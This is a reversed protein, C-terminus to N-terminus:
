RGEVRDGVIRAPVGLVKVNAPVDKTVVAGAGVVAEPGISTRDVVVAGLAVYARAGIRCFGAVNAGPSITAFDGIEVDHGILAGRNVIVHRGIKTRTAIVVGASVITGEGLESRRSVRATPHILTEFGIGLAAVQNIILERTTTGLACVARHTDAFVAIEEIWYVPLNELPKETRARDLNEVFGDVRYGPIDSVLDLVEPAFGYTGLVLLPQVDV